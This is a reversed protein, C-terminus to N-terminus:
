AHLACTSREGVVQRWHLFSSGCHERNAAKIERWPFSVAPPRAQPSSASGTAEEESCKFCTSDDREDHQLHEPVVRQALVRDAVALRVARTGHSVGGSGEVLAGCRADNTEGSVVVGSSRSLVSEGEVANPARPKVPWAGRIVATAISTGANATSKKEPTEHSYPVNSGLGGTWIDARWPQM